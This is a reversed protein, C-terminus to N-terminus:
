TSPASCITHGGSSLLEATCRHRISRTSLRLRFAQVHHTLESGDGIANVGQQKLEAALANATDAEDKFTLGAVGEPTVITAPFPTNASAM